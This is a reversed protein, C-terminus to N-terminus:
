VCWLWSLFMLHNSAYEARQQARADKAEDRPTIDIGIPSGIASIPIRLSIVAIAGILTRVSLVVSVVILPSCVAPLALLLLFIPVTL